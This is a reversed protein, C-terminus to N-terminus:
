RGARPFPEPRYRGDGLLMRGAREVFGHPKERTRPLPAVAYRTAPASVHRRPPRVAAVPESVYVLQREIRVSATTAPSLVPAPSRNGSPWLLALSGLAALILKPRATTM